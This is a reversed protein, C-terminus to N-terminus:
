RLNWKSPNILVPDQANFQPIHLNINEMKKIENRVEKLQELSDLGLIIKKIAPNSLACYLAGGLPTIGEESLWSDWSEFIKVWRFFFPPRKKMLLLGQLFVSRAHFAINRKELEDLWGSNLMRQDFVSFPGQVINFDMNRTLEDLDQPDYISIGISKVLGQQRMDCLTKYILYGSRELLQSPDHILLGGLSDINLRELSAEVQQLIHGFIDETGDPIRPLKSIVEWSNVGIEGLIKESVGYSIATDLTNAGYSFAEHMIKKANESSVMGSQNAVGYKSGFQATGIAVRSWIINESKHM